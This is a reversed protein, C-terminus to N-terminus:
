SAEDWSPRHFVGTGTATRVYVQADGCPRLSHIHRVVQNVGPNLVEFFHLIGEEDVVQEFIVTGTERQVMHLTDVQAVKSVSHPVPM